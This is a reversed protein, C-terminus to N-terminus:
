FPAFFAVAYSGVANKRKQPGAPRLAGQQISFHGVARGVM